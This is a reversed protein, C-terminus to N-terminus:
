FGDGGADVPPPLKGGEVPTIIPEDMTYSDPVSTELAVLNDPFADTVPEIPGGDDRAGDGAGDASADGSGDHTGGDVPVTTDTTTRGDNSADEEGSPGLGSPSSSSSCEGALLGACLCAGALAL